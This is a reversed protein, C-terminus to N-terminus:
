ATIYVNSEKAMPIPEEWIAMILARKSATMTRRGKLQSNANGRLSPNGPIQRPCARDERSGAM